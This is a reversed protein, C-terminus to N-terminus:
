RPLSAAATVPGGALRLLSLATAARSLGIVSYAGSMYSILVQTLSVLPMSSRTMANVALPIDRKREIGRERRIDTFRSVRCGLKGAM